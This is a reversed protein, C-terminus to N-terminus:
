HLKITTVNKYGLRIKGIMPAPSFIHASFNDSKPIMEYHVGQVEVFSYYQQTEFKLM